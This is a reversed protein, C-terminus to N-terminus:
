TCSEYFENQIVGTSSIQFSFAKYPIITFVPIGFILIYALGKIM